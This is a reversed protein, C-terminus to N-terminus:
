LSPVSMTQSEHVARPRLPSPTRAFEAALDERAFDMLLTSRSQDDPPIARQETGLIESHVPVPTKRHLGLRASFVRMASARDVLDCATAGTAIAMNRSERRPASHAM